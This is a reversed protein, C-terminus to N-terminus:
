AIESVNQIRMSCCKAGAIFFHALSPILWYSKGSRTNGIPNVSYSPFFYSSSFFIIFPFFTHLLFFPNVSLQERTNQIRM